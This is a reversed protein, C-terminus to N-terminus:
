SVPLHRSRPTSTVPQPATQIIPFVAWWQRAVFFVELHGMARSVRLRARASVCELFALLQHNALALLSPLLFLPKSDPFSPHHCCCDIRGQKNDNKVENFHLI